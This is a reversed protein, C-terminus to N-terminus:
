ITGYIKIPTTLSKEISWNLTHIRTYLTGYNIKYEISWAKLCQTKGKFTYNTNSRTNRAQVQNTTFRCNEKYYGKNNDIRDLSLGPPCEGMDELFNEFSGGKKPNWRDCVTIGRGYYNEDNKNKCRRIMHYWISHTRSEKGNRAHGHKLNCDKKLCGCSQTPKSKNTLHFGAIIKENGCDCKCLWRSNRFKGNDKREKVVLKGFRRGILDIFNHSM